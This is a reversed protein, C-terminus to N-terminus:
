CNTSRLHFQNKLNVSVRMGAAYSEVNRSLMEWEPSISLESLYKMYVQYM